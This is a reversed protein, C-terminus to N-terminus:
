VTLKIMRGNDKMATEMYIISNEKVMPKIKNGNVKMNQAMLGKYKIILKYFIAFFYLIYLDLSRIWRKIRGVM